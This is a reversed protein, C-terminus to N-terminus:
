REGEIHYELVVADLQWGVKQDAADYVYVSVADSSPPGQRLSMSEPQNVVVRSRDSPPISVHYEAWNTNWNREARVWLCPSKTSEPKAVVAVGDVAAQKDLGGLVYGRSRFYSLYGDGSYDTYVAAEECRILKDNVDSRGFYPKLDYSATTVGLDKSYMVSSYATAIEGDYITWGGRVGLESMMGRQTDYSLLLNPVDEGDTALWWWVQHKKHHYIGHAMVSEADYNITAFTTEIDAGIYELGRTSIRYPGRRSLFYIAPQGGEDEGLVISKQNLAGINRHVNVVRYPNTAVGTKILKWVSSTKFVYIADALPGAIGTVGGDVGRAVDVYYKQGAGV